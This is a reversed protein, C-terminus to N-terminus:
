LVKKGLIALHKLVPHIIYFTEGGSNNEIEYKWGGSLVYGQLCEILVKARAESDAIHDIEIREKPLPFKKRLLIPGCDIERTLFIASAGITNENILSYYNTTSGKYDPLYGGHIHLFKKGISLIKKKLIVGGYGSFIFVQESRNKIIRVIEDSNIDNDYSIKFKINSSKLLNILENKTQEENQGPLLENKSSLLLLVYNPLLNNKLLEKIYHKTRTTDAAVMAIDPLNM